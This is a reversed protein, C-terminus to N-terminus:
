RRVGQQAQEISLEHIEDREAQGTDDGELRLTSLVANPVNIQKRPSQAVHASDPILQPRTSGGEGNELDTVNIEDSVDYGYAKMSANTFRGTARLAKMTKSRLDDGSDTIPPVLYYSSGSGADFRVTEVADPITPACGSAQCAALTSFEGSGDGPDVCVGDVCNYSEAIECSTLCAALTAFTGSGDGPDVCGSPTCNYTPTCTGNTEVTFDNFRQTFDRFETGTGVQIGSKTGYNQPQASDDYTDVVVDNILVEFDSGCYALGISDGPVLPPNIVRDIVTAPGSGAYTRGLRLRFTNLFNTYYLVFYYNANVYRVLIGSNTGLNLLEDPNVLTVKTIANIFDSEIVASGGIHSGANFSFLANNSNIGWSGGLQDWVQGTNATGLSTPNDPLDFDAFVIIAM